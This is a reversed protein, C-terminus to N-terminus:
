EKKKKPPDHPLREVLLQAQLEPVAEQALLLVTAGTKQLEEAAQPNAVGCFVPGKFKARMEQVLHALAPSPGDVEVIPGFPFLLRFQHELWRRVLSYSPGSEAHSVVYVVRYELMEAWPLIDASISVPAIELIPKKQLTEKYAAVDAAVLATVDVLFVASEAPWCFVRGQAISGSRKRDGAFRVTFSSQPQDPSWIVQGVGTHDSAARGLAKAQGFPGIEFHLDLGALDPNAAPLQMPELRARLSIKEGTLGIADFALVKVPPPDPRPYVVLVFLGLPVAVVLLTILIGPWTWPRKKRAAVRLLRTVEDDPPKPTKKHLM